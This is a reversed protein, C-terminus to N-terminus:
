KRKKKKKKILLKGMLGVSDRRRFRRAEPREEEWAAVMMPREGPRIEWIEEVGSNARWNSAALASSAEEESMSSVERVELYEAASCRRRFCTISIAGEASRFSEILAKSTIAL